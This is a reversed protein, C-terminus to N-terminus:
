LLGRGARSARWWFAGGWEALGRAELSRMLGLLRGYEADATADDVDGLLDALCTWGSQGALGTGREPRRRRLFLALLASKEDATLSDSASV